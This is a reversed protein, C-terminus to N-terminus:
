GGYCFCILVVNPNQKVRTHTASILSVFSLLHQYLHLSVFSIYMAPLITISLM